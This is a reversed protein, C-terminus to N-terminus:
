NHLKLNERVTSEGGAAAVGTDGICTYVNPSDTWGEGTIGGYYLQYWMLMADVGLHHSFSRLADPNNMPSPFQFAFMYDIDSPDGDCTASQWSSIASVIPRFVASFPVREIPQRWYIGAAVIYEGDGRTRADQRAEAHLEDVPVGRLVAIAEFVLAKDADTLADYCDRERQGVRDNVIREALARVQASAVKGVCAATSFVNAVALDQSPVQAMATRPWAGVMLALPIVMLLLNFTPM